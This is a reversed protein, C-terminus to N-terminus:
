HIPISIDVILPLHDSTRITLATRPVEINHINIEPSVFIHDIRGIPYAGFFTRQPRHDNLSVQTDRFHRRIRKCVKSHPLSNFDGCVITPNLRRPNGLWEEGMLAEVQALREKGRLGFHTNFLHIEQNNVTVVAWLAGRPELVFKHPLTPLSGAHILRMPYRSLIANGYEGEELQIAPSFHYEMELTRAIFQAQDIKGTRKRRVDLEQLAIIDPNYHSIVRAIRRPSLRGDMNRCHHVNYTMLRLPIANKVSTRIQPRKPASKQGLFILAGERLDLPRIYNKEPHQPLPAATPLLAFARTEEPGPGAHSGNELPFSLSKKGLRWGSLILDGADPHHCLAALDIGVETLFPHGNGLIEAADEPLTFKGSLTWAHASARPGPALVLPVHADKVLEQALREREKEQLTHFTYVHGLSGMATVLPASTKADDEENDGLLWNVIAGGLWKSRRFQVGRKEALSGGKWKHNRGFVHAVAQRITKGNEVPYPISEEQGHDSYVWVDYDRHTSRRAAHFLRCITGDIGKLTWHAFKSSPGRRHAQEDYGIFNLHVIPLGRMVDITAGIAVLDRLLISIAVRTPIFKLEKFFDKGTVLGRMFDFLALVFEVLILFTTRVLSFAHVLVLSLLALPRFSRKLHGWGFGEPCFHAEQSGGSFINAYSSGNKLLGPDIKSLANQAYIVSDSDFMRHVKGSAREFFSFAPVVGKVGYFLEGQIAPTSSPLGTYLTHLRYGERRLLSKLFPMKGAELATELQKRSLGDIQIMLLGPEDETGESRSLNLLRMMWESRSLLTKIKRPIRGIKELM